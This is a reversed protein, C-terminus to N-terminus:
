MENSFESSSFAGEKSMVIFFVIWGAIQLTSLLLALWLRWRGRRVISSPKRWGVIAVIISAPAGIMSPYLCLLLPATALVLACTDWLTRNTELQTLKGKTRGSEVCGPCLNRDGLKVDCLACLFRGCASCPVTARKGPHYFCSAEGASLLNEPQVAAPTAPRFLAPFPTVSVSQSCAPCATLAALEAATDPWSASCNPCAISTLNAV